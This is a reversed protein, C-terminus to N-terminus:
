KAEDGRNEVKEKGDAEAAANKKASITKKVLGYLKYCGWGATAVGALALAGLGVKKATGPQMGFIKKSNNEQPAETAPAETNVVTNNNEVRAEREKNAFNEM